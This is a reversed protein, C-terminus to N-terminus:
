SESPEHQGAMELVLLAMILYTHNRQRKEHQSLLERIGAPEFLGKDIFRESLLVRHVLPKLERALWLGLREYPQYGAVGLRGLVKMRFYALKAQWPGANMPAGTNANVVDLFEPRSRALIAAQLEDGIKLRVPAALLTDVLEPDLLPVRTEVFNRFLHLSPATERRLRESVFMRWIRQPVPEVHDWVALQRELAARAMERMRTAFRGKFLSEEAEGIMYGSLHSWLWDSLAPPSDLSLATRDLSFAYAKSMHMLEGAHGRLLTQIGLERYTPLTTLVIGQDLYLGDTLDVVQRFLTEFRSLFDGALMLQHHPQGALDALRSAARHDISGPIGLSVCTMRTGRPAVGLITRADLGGSLSLGLTTDTNCARAVCAETREAILDKWARDSAVNPVDAPKAYPTVAVTGAQADFTLWCGAPVLTIDRYRTSEGLYQGFSLFQALGSEDPATSVGEVALLASIESAFLFREGARTWYLGRMGYRDTAISLRLSADDWVACSFCGHVSAFLSPGDRRLGECIASVVPQRAEQPTYLEGDFGVTLHGSTTLGSAASGNAPTVLAQGIAVGAGEIHSPVHWPFRCMRRLMIEVVSASSPSAQPQVVGCLGPM